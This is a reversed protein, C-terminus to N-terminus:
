LFARKLKDSVKDWSYKAVAYSRASKGMTLRRNENGILEDIVEALNSADGPDVQLGDFGDRFVKRVGPLYSAIVPIGCAMAETLVLGFAEHRNISPLIFIDSDQYTKILATEDLRGLFKVQNTFGLTDVQQKYSETLNGTGVINLRWHKKTVKSLAEFLVPLGKFYHASDLGGVFLLNVQGRKIFAKTVYNVIAKTKAIMGTDHEPLKPSFLDTDLGFPVERFKEPYKKAFESIQSNDIYDLSGSIITDAKKFLSIKTMASLWTLPKLYWALDATDMHYHIVLKTNPHFLLYLWVIESAGFFPYHLYICDFKPLLFLLSFPLGGHGVRLIPKLYKVDAREEIFEEAPRLTFTKVEHESALIEGFRKASQGIGGPYPPYVCVIQAIKM